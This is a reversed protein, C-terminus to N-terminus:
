MASNHSVPTVKTLKCKIYREPDLACPPLSKKASFFLRYTVKGIIVAAGVAIATRLAPSYEQATKILSAAAM